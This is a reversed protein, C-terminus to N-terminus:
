CFSILLALSSSSSNKSSESNSFCFLRIGNSLCSPRPPVHQTERSESYDNCHMAHMCQEGM